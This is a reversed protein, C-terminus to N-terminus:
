LTFVRLDPLGVIKVLRIMKRFSIIDTILCCNNFHLELRLIKNFFSSVIM